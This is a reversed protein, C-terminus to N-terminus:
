KGGPQIDTNSFTMTYTESGVPICCKVVENNVDSNCDHKKKEPSVTITPLSYVNMRAKASTNKSEYSFECRYEGLVFM